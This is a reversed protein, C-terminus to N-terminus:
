CRLRPRKRVNRPYHAGVATVILSEHILTRRAQGLLSLPGIKSPVYRHSSGSGQVAVRVQAASGSNVAVV